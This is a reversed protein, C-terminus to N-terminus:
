NLKDLRKEHSTIFPAIILPSKITDTLLVRHHLPNVAHVCDDREVRVDLEIQYNSVHVGTDSTGGFLLVVTADEHLSCRLAHEASAARNKNVSLNDGLVRM